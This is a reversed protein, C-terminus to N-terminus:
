ATARADGVFRWGGPPLMNALLSPRHGRLVVHLAPRGAQDVIEYQAVYAPAGRWERMEASVFAAARTRAAAESAPDLLEAGAVAARDAISQLRDQSRTVALLDAAGVAMLFLAPAVFAFRLASAGNFARPRAGAHPAGGDGQVHRDANTLSSSLHRVTLERASLDAM